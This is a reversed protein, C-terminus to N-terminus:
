DGKKAYFKRERKVEVMFNKEANKAAHANIDAFAKEGEIWLRAETVLIYMSPLHM